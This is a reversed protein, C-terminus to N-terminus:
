PETSSHICDGFHNTEKLINSLGNEVSSGLIEFPVWFKLPYNELIIIPSLSGRMNWCMCVHGFLSGFRGPKISWIPGTKYPTKQISSSTQHGNRSAFFACVNLFHGSKLTWKLYGNSRKNKQFLPCESLM